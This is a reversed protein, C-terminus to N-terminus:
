EEEEERPVADIKQLFKRVISIFDEIKEEQPLHGCNKIVELHSGPIARSLRVANWSPVLRDTDGTIILVPCSIDKLRQSLPPKSESESESDTLMAVVFELLAKDWGKTKLPKTYGQLINDTVQSGDYWANKIGAIGFKDIVIRILAAAFSTRLISKLAKKFLSNAIKAIAKLTGIVALAIYTSFKSLANVMHSFPNGGVKSRAGVDNAQNETEQQDEKVLKQQLISLPAAIAPAVLILAAVREPAEFYTNVAVLSGASHGVLIIKEAVLLNIFYMTALVSFMMSYPNLPQVDTEESSNETSANRTNPESFIRSTLGFAPRDFAIVKSGICQALPKLVQDWSFVSAGFGHLLVMPFRKKSPQNTVLEKSSDQNVSLVNEEIGEEGAVKYHIQVGKFECFCSDADALDVPDLLEDQEIGAIRQSKKKKSGLMQENYDAAGASSAAKCSFDSSITSLDHVTWFATPSTFIPHFLSYRRAIARKPNQLCPIQPTKLHANHFGSTM